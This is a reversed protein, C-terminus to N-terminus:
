QSVVLGIAVSLLAGLGLVRRFGGVEEQGQAPISVSATM